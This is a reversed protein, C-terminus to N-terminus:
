TSPRRPEILDQVDRARYIGVQELFADVVRDENALAATHSLAAAQGAATAGAKLAVVPLARSAAVRGLEAVWSADRITELYLVILGIEPDLAMATAVEAVSVDAENGTAACYRVGFGRARLMAYPVQSMSGSQSAVAVPGDAPPQELYMTSFTLVAGNSFNTIGQCNPGVLRMGAERAAAVMRDQAQRGEESTEAFGSAMVVAAPVGAVASQEVARVAEAGPVVIVAADPPGPLETLDAYSTLGQVTARRPNIPYIQGGYGFRRLFDIPRGGVKGPDDSAGIVAVSRPALLPQLSRTDM